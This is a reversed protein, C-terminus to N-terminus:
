LLFDFLIKDSLEKEEWMGMHASKGLLHVHSQAPLYCQQLSSQLPVANDFEGMVFLIPKPFTKLVETRDPRAMMAQYYQILAANTFDKGREVLGNIKEPYEEGFSRTFLGPISTKLFAYSGNDNIFDIAKLRVQKKEQYGRCHCIRVPVM